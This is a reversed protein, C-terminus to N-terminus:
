TGHHSRLYWRSGALETVLKSAGGAGVGGAADLRASGALQLSFAHRIPGGFVVCLSAEDERNAHAPLATRSASRRQTRSRSFWSPELGVVFRAPFPPVRPASGIPATLQGRPARTQPWPAYRKRTATRVPGRPSEKGM